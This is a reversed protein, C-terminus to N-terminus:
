ESMMRKIKETSVIAEKPLISIGTIDELIEILVVKDPTELSVKNSIKEAIRSILEKGSIKSNRKEISIRYSEDKGLNGMLKIVGVEIKQYDTETVEQIPIIRQCYRVSWPEDNIMEGIKRGVEIPDLETHAMLIGSMKSITIQPEPDGFDGLIKSIEQSTEPEFHRRCTVILNM